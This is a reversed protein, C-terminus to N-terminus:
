GEDSGPQEQRQDHGQWRRVGVLHNTHVKPVPLDHFHGVRRVRRVPQIQRPQLQFQKIRHIEALRQLEEPLSVQEGAALPRVQRPIHIPNQFALGGGARLIAPKNQFVIRAM